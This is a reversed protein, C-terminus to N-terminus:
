FPLAELDAADVDLKDQLMTSFEPANAPAVPQNIPAAIFNSVEEMKAEQYKQLYDHLEGEYLNSAAIREEPTAEVTEIVPVDYSVAGTRGKKTKAISYKVGKKKEFWERLAAGRLQLNALEGDIMIYISATYKGGRSVVTDKIEKYFGAAIEGGKFSKVLLPQIGISSIENSYIGCENKEDFGTITALERLAVFELPFEVPVDKKEEKDWYSFKGSKFRIFKKCPNELTNAEAYISM